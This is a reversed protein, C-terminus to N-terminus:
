EIILQGKDMLEYLYTKPYLKVKSIRAYENHIKQIDNVPNPIETPPVEEWGETTSILEGFEYTSVKGWKVEIFEVSNGIEKEFSPFRTEHFMGTIVKYKKNGMMFTNGKVFKVRNIRAELMDLAQTPHGAATAAKRNETILDTLSM